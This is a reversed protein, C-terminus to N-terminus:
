ERNPYCNIHKQVFYIYVFCIFKPKAIDQMYNYGGYFPTETPYETKLM